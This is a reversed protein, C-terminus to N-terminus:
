FLTFESLFIKKMAINVIANGISDRAKTGTGVSRIPM